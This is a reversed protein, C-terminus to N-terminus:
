SWDEQKQILLAISAGVKSLKRTLGQWEGLLAKLKRAHAAKAKRESGYRRILANRRAAQRREDSWPRYVYDPDGMSRV